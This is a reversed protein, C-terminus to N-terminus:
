VGLKKATQQLYPTKVIRKGTGKEATDQPVVVNRRVGDSGVSYPCAKELKSDRPPNPPNKKKTKKKKKGEQTPEKLFKEAIGRVNELAKFSKDAPTTPTQLTSGAQLNLHYHSSFHTYVGIRAGFRLLCSPGWSIGVLTRKRERTQSFETEGTGGGRQDGSSDQEPPKESYLISKQEDEGEIQSTHSLSIRRKPSAESNGSKEHFFQDGGIGEGKEGHRKGVKGEEKLREIYVGGAERLRGRM